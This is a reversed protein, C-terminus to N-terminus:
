APRRCIAIFAPSDLRLPNGRYDGYTEEIVFGAAHLMKTIETPAYVRYHEERRHVVDGSYYDTIHHARCTLPDFSGEDIVLVDGVRQWTRRGNPDYHQSFLWTMELGLRGGPALASYISSLQEQDGLETEHFGISTGVCIAAAFGGLSVDAMDGCVFRVPAAVEAARREAIAIAEPEPDVGTVAYGRRTLLISHRGRNCGVDLISQGAAVRLRPLLFSVENETRSAWHEDETIEIYWRGYPPERLVRM